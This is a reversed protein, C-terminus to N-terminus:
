KIKQGTLPDFVSEGGSKKKMTVTSPAPTVGLEQTTEQEKASLETLFNSLLNKRFAIKKSLAMGPAETQRFWQGLVPLDVWYKADSLSALVNDDAGAAKLDELTIDNAETTKKMKMAKQLFTAQKSLSEGVKYAENRAQAIDKLEMGAVQMKFNQTLIAQQNRISTAEGLAREREKIVGMQGRALDQLKSYQREQEAIRMQQLTVNQKFDEKLEDFKSTWDLKDFRAGSVDVGHKIGYMGVALQLLLAYAQAKAYKDGLDERAAEYTDKFDQLGKTLDPMDETAMGLLRQLGEASQVKAVMDIKDIISSGKLAGEVKGKKDEYGLAAKVEKSESSYAVPEPPAQLVAMVSSGSGTEKKPSATTAPGQSSSTAKSQFEEKYVNTQAPTFLSPMASQIPEGMGPRYGPTEEIFKEKNARIIRDIAAVKDGVPLGKIVRKQETTLNRAIDIQTQSLSAPDIGLETVLPDAPKENEKRKYFAERKKLYEEEPSFKDVM